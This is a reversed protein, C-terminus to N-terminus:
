AVVGAASRAIDLLLDRFAPPTVIRQPSDRGGGRSGVEGLRRAAALGVRAVTEADPQWRSRGWDLSPLVPAVAYLWTPKRAWHGYRGQEVRCTWGGEWDAVVWGGSAPPQILGFHSWARSLEPHELVGGFRRVASLAAAFCGGDDGLVKRAGTRAITPPHGAWLKGWRQCPPHAVVPMPGPYRRADRREDWADVDPIGFYSGSSSVFLAAIM